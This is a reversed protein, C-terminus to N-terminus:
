QFHVKNAPRIQKKFSLSPCDNSIIGILLLNQYIAVGSTIQPMNVSTSLCQSINTDYVVYRSSVGQRCKHTM